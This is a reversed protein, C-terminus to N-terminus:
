RRWRPRRGEANYRVVADRLAQREMGALRAAEARRMGELAHAIAMMRSAARGNRERRARARLEGASLDDRIALAGGMEGEKQLSEVV